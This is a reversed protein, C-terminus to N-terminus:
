AGNAVKAGHVDLFELFRGFGSDVADLFSVITMGRFM